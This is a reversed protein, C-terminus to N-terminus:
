PLVTSLCPLLKNTGAPAPSRSVDDCVDSAEDDIEAGAATLLRRDDDGCACPM